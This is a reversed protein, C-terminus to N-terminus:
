SWSLAVSASVFLVQCAMPFSSGSTAQVGEQCLPVTPVSTTPMPITPVPTTSVPITPVLKDGYGLFVNIFMDQFVDILLASRLACLINDERNLRSGRQGRVMGQLGLVISLRIRPRRRM